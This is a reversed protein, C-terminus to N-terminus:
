RKKIVIIDVIVGREDVVLIIKDPTSTKTKEQACSVNPSSPASPNAAFSASVVGIALCLTAILKKM